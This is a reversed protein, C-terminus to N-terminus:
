LLRMATIATILYIIEYQRIYRKDAAKSSCKTNINEMPRKCNLIENSLKRNWKYLKQTHTCLFSFLSPLSLGRSLM